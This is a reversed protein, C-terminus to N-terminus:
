QESRQEEQAVLTRAGLEAPVGELGGHEKAAAGSAQRTAARGGPGFGAAAAPSATGQVGARQGTLPVEAPPAAGSGRKTDVKELQVVQKEVKERIFHYQIDIHKTGSTSRRSDLDGGWDSDVHGVVDLVRGTEAGEYCISYDSTGRLYRFVRKVASWHEKGPKAMYRSLVGVAQAIDPRTCVMAYMLSGVASAYPVKAMDEIDEHTKPCMEASLKEGVPMPAGVPKCDAMNFKKLVEEIYRQQGLWLKKKSRERTIQMGLIVSAPGLDKMEFKASLLKKLQQIMKVSNGVLLMDDVYLTLITFHEGKRQFYVCHDSNSRELGLELMYTDFKQYWMRPSQKLGYLSKKLRCVQDEKGKAEFGEPQRMYIEEELDGHLFATKVDMQEIELDHVAAISLVMRISTLKAVPSFIEDYDVGEVQSFGKAVLRAKYKEVTGDAKVKQKFVWKSGIAKRGKPLKCLGWTQNKRLSVMEDEMALEWQNADARSRADRASIPDEGLMNLCYQAGVASLSFRLPARRERTSRRLLPADAVEEESEDDLGVEELDDSESDSDSGETTTIQADELSTEMSGEVVVKEADKEEEVRTTVQPRVEHFVVDKSYTVTKTVPNWLKYGKIGDKYGVFICRESKMDLKGRKEKPIHVYADCGFVRAYALKPKEKFIAEFPTCGKVASTPSRNKLHNATAVAEAWFEKGLGAWSRMCREKEILTRNLREAVGNQEPTYPTTKQRAIGQETCYQEFADSCYEGGNDSRLVKVKREFQNEVLNKFEKFRDLVEAKSRLFYLWSYRSYDDIFSVYYRAGGLSPVPTPGFVDSHILDLPGTARTGAGQFSVRNQKGLLCHECFGFSSTCMPVGEVMQGSTMASMGKESIHGLRQHWLRSQEEQDEEQGESIFAGSPVVTGALLKYLTGHRVGKAIVMAGRTMRCSHMDCSFCVGADAMSGVSILNRSMGPIHMVGPLTKMTGDAMKLMVKGRGIIQVATDDGLMVDGGEFREYECFWHRQQDERLKREQDGPVSDGPGRGATRDAPGGGPAGGGSGRIVSQRLQSLTNFGIAISGAGSVEKFFDALVFIEKTSELELTVRRLRVLKEGVPM